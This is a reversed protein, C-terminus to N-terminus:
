FKIILLYFKIGDKLFLYLQNLTQPITQREISYFCGDSTNVDGFIGGEKAYPLVPNIEKPGVVVSFLVGGGLSILAGHLRELLNKPVSRNSTKLYPFFINFVPTVSHM